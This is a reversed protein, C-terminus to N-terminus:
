VAKKHARIFETVQELTIQEFDTDGGTGTAWKLEGTKVWGDPTWIEGTYLRDPTCRFVKLIQRYTQSKEWYDIFGWYQYKM